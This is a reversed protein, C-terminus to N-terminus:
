LVATPGSSIEGNNKFFHANMSVGAIVEKNLLDNNDPIKESCHFNEYIVGIKL